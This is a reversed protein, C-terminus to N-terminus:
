THVTYIALTPLVVFSASALVSYFFSVHYLLSSFLCDFMFWSPLFMLPCHSADPLLPLFFCAPPLASCITTVEPGPLLPVISPRRYFSKASSPAALSRSPLSPPLVSFRLRPSPTISHLSPFAPPRPDLLHHITVQHSKLPAGSNLLSRHISPDM